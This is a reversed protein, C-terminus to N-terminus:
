ANRRVIKYHRKLASYASIALAAGIVFCIAAAICRTAASMGPFVTTLVLGLAVGEFATGLAYQTAKKIPRLDLTDEVLTKLDM